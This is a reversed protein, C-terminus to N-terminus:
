NSCFYWILYHCTSKINGNSLYQYSFFSSFFLHSLSSPASSSFADLAPLSLKKEERENMNITSPHMRFTLLKFRQFDDLFLLRPSVYASFSFKFFFFLQLFYRVRAERMKVYIYTSTFLTSAISSFCLSFFNSVFYQSRTFSSSCNRFTIRQTQNKTCVETEKSKRINRQAVM